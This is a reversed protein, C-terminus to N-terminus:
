KPQDGEACHCPQEPGPFRHTTDAEEGEGARKSRKITPAAHASIAVEGFAHAEGTDEFEPSAFEPNPWDGGLADHRAALTRAEDETDAAARSPPRGPLDELQEQNVSARSMGCIQTNASCKEPGAV